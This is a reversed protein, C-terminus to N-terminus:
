QEITGYNVMYVYIYIYLIRICLGMQTTNYVPIHASATTQQTKQQVESQIPIIYVAWRTAFSQWPLDGHCDQYWHIPKFRYFILIVISILPNDIKTDHMHKFYIKSDLTYWCCDQYWYFVCTPSDNTRETSRGKLLNQSPIVTSHLLHVVRLNINGVTIAM